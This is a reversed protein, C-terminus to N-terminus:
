SLLFDSAKKDALIRSDRIIKKLKSYLIELIANGRCLRTEYLFNVPHSNPRQSVAFKVKGGHRPFYQRIMKLARTICYVVELVFQWCQKEKYHFKWYQTTPDTEKM